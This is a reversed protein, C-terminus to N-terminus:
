VWNELQLGSVREFEKLNNTDLTHGLARAHAPM